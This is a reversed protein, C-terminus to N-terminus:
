YETNFSYLKLESPQIQETTKRITYNVERNSLFSVLEFNCPVLIRSLLKSSNKVIIELIEDNTSLETDLNWRDTKELEETGVYGDPNIDDNAKPQEVVVALNFAFITVSNLSYLAQFFTLLFSIKLCNNHSINKSM